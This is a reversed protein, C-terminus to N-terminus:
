RRNGSRKLGRSADRVTDVVQEIIQDIEAMRLKPHRRGARGRQRREEAHVGEIVAQLSSKRLARLGKGKITRACRLLRAQMGRERRLEDDIQRARAPWGERVALEALSHAPIRLSKAVLLTSRRPGQGVYLRFAKLATKQNM